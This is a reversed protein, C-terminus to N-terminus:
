KATAWSRGFNSIWVVNAEWAYTYDTTRSNSWPWPWGQEPTTADERSEFLRRIERRFAEESTAALFPTFEENDPYGDWALSGIWEASEGRGVYFDCRTGM